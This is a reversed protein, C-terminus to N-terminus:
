QSNAHVHEFLTANEAKKANQQAQKAHKAGARIKEHETLFRMM